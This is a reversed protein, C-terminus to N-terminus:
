PTLTKQPDTGTFLVRPPPDAPSSNTDEHRFETWTFKNWKNSIIRKDHHHKMASSFASQLVLVCLCVCLVTIGVKLGSAAQLRACVLNDEPEEMLGGWELRGQSVPLISAQLQMLALRWRPPQAAWDTVDVFKGALVSAGWTSIFVLLCFWVHDYIIPAQKWFLGQYLKCWSTLQLFKKRFRVLNKIGLYLWGPASM